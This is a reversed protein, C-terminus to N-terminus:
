FGKRNRFITLSPGRLEKVTIQRTEIGLGDGALCTGSNLLVGWRTLQKMAWGNALVRCEEENQPLQINDVRQHIVEIVKWAIDQVSDVHVHYHILDLYSAGALVRLTIMLMLEPM